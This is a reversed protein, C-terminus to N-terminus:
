LQLFKAKQLLIYCVLQLLMLYMELLLAPAAFYDLADAIISIAM